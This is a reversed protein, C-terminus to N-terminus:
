NRRCGRLETTVRTSEETKITVCRKEECSKHAKLFLLKTMRTLTQTVSATFLLFIGFNNARVIEVAERRVPWRSPQQRRPPHPPPVGFPFSVYVSLM